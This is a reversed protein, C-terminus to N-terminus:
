LSNLFENFVSLKYEELVSQDVLTNIKRYTKEAAKEIFTGQCFLQLIPSIRNFRELKIINHPKIKEPRDTSKDVNDSAVPDIQDMGIKEGGINNRWLGTQKGSYRNNGASSIGAEPFSIPM